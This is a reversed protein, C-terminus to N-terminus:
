HAAAAASEAALVPAHSKEEPVSPAVAPPGAAASNSALPEASARPEDVAATLIEVFGALEAQSVPEELYLDALRGGVQFANIVHRSVVVVPINKRCKANRLFNSFKQNGRCYEVIVAALTKTRARRLAAALSRCGIPIHGASCVARNLAVLRKKSRAFCLIQAM